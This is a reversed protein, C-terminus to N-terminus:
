KEGGRFIVGFFVAASLLKTNADANDWLPQAQSFALYILCLTGAVIPVIFLSLLTVKKERM